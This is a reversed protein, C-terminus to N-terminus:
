YINFTLTDKLNNMFLTFINAKEVDNKVNLDVEKIVKNDKMIKLTGVKDSTKIPAVM